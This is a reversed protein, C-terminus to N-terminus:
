RAIQCTATPTATTDAAIVNRIERNIVTIITVKKANVTNAVAYSKTVPWRPGHASGNCTTSTTATTAIRLITAGM